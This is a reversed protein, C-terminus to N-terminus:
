DNNSFCLRTEKEMLHLMNYTVYVWFDLGIGIGFDLRTEMRPNGPNEVQMIAAMKFLVLFKIEVWASSILLVILKSTIFRKQNTM